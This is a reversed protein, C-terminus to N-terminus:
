INGAIYSWVINKHKKIIITSILFMLILAPLGYILTFPFMIWSGEMDQDFVMPGLILVIFFFTTILYNAIFFFIYNKTKM